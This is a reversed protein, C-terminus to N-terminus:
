GISKKLSLVHQLMTVLSEFMSGVYGTFGAIIAATVIIFPKDIGDYGKFPFLKPM